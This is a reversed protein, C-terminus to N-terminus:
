QFIPEELATTDAAILLSELSDLRAELAELRKDKEELEVSTNEYVAELM